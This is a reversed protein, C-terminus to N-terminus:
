KLVKYNRRGRAKFPADRAVTSRGKGTKKATDNVLTEDQSKESRKKKGRGAGPAKGKGTEPHLKEYITPSNEPGRRGLRSRPHTIKKFGDRRDAGVQNATRARSLIQSSRWFVSPAAAKNRSASCNGRVNTALVDVANAALLRSQRRRGPVSSRYQDARDPRPRPAGVRMPDCVQPGDNGAGIADVEVANRRPLHGGRLGFMCGRHQRLDHRPTM